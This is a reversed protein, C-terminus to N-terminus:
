TSIWDSGGTMRAIVSPIRGSFGSPVFLRPNLLSSHLVTSSHQSSSRLARGTTSSIIEEKFPAVANQHILSNQTRMNVIKNKNM